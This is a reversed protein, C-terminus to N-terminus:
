PSVELAVLDLLTAGAMVATVMEALKVSPDRHNLLSKALLCRQEATTPTPDTFSDSPHPSISMHAESETLDLQPTLPRDPHQRVQDTGGSKTAGKLISSNMVGAQAGRRAM